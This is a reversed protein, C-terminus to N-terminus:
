DQLEIILQLTEYRKSFIKNFAVLMFRIRVYGVCINLEIRM